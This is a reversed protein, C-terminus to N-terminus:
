NSFSLNPSNFKHERRNRINQNAEYIECYLRLVGRASWCRDSEAGNRWRNEVKGAKGLEVLLLGVFILHRSFIAHDTHHLFPSAPKCLQGFGSSASPYFISVKLGAHVSLKTKFDM